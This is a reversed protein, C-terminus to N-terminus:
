PVALDEAIESDDVATVSMDEPIRIKKKLMREVAGKALLPTVFFVADLEKTQKLLTEIGDCGEKLGPREVYVILDKDVPLGAEKLASVYGEFRPLFWPNKLGCAVCGIKKRGGDVLFKVSKHAAKKADMIVHNIDKKLMPVDTFVYPFNNKKLREIMFDFVPLYSSFLLGKIKIEGNFIKDLRRDAEKRTQGHVVEIEAHFEYLAPLLGKLQKSSLSLGSTIADERVEGIFLGLKQPRNSNVFTGKGSFRDILHEKELEALAKRVTGRSLSYEKVLEFETPFVGEKYKGSDIDFKLRDKLQLYYPIGSKKNIM